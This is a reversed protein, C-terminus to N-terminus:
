VIAQTAVNAVGCTNTGLELYIYGANGWDTNWSNRVIWYPMTGNTDFGVVQVCHNTDLLSHGCESGTMIGSQYDQWPSGNLCVSVPGNNVLNKAMTTEDQLDCFLVDLCLPTAFGFGRITSHALSSNFTCAGRQGSQGSEYPYDAALELGGVYQVYSYGMLTTGGHCGQDVLFHDCDVVQQASLQPVPKQGSNKDSLFWMSEIDEVTSFAWCSGCQGQDYVPSVANHERWDFRKVGDVSFPSPYSPRSQKGIPTPVLPAHAPSKGTLYLAKFEEESLDSFKTLGYTAGSDTAKRMNNREAIRHLSAQFNRLRVNYEHESSYQKNHQVQWQQFTVKVETPTLALVATGVATAILLVLLLQQV